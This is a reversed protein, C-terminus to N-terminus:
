WDIDIIASISFLKLLLFICIPGDRSLVFRSVIFLPRKLSQTVFYVLLTGLKSKTFPFIDIFVLESFIVILNPLKLYLTFITESSSRYSPSMSM